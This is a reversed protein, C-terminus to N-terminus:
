DLVVDIWTNTNLWQLFEIKNRKSLYNLMEEVTFDLLLLEITKELTIPTNM